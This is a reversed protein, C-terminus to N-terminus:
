RVFFSQKPFRLVRRESPRGHHTALSGPFGNCRPDSEVANASNGVQHKAAKLEDAAVGFKESRYRAEYHETLNIKSRDQQGKKTKDNSMDQVELDFVSGSRPRELHHAADVRVFRALEM